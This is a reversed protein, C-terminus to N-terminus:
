GAVAKKKFKGRFVLIIFKLNGVMYRKWLNFPDQSLRFLWELGTKQMWEPARKKNGAIIDFFGGVGLFYRVTLENRFKEVFLEKKPSPMGLFMIDPNLQNIKSVIDSENGSTFYGNQYGAIVLNPFMRKLGDRCLLINKESAGLLFVSYHKNEALKLIDLALDPCAVREPVKMRLFRLAWVVSMGDINVLDSGNLARRYQDNGASEIVSAANIGNQVLQTRKELNSSVLSLFDSRRLPNIKLDFAKIEKVVNMTHYETIFKGSGPIILAQWPM